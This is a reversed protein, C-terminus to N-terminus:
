GDCRGGIMGSIMLHARRVTKQDMQTLIEVIREIRQPQKTAKTGQLYGYRFACCIAAPVSTSGEIIKDIEPITMDFKDDIKWLAENSKDIVSKKTTRFNEKKWSFQLVSCQNYDGKRKQNCLSIETIYDSYGKQMPTHDPIRKEARHMQQHM